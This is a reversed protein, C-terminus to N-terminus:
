RSYYRAIDEEEEEDEPPEEEDLVLPSEEEEYLYRDPAESEERKHLSAGAL